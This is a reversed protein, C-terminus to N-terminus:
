SYEGHLGMSQWFIGPLYPIIRVFGRASGAEEPFTDLLRCQFEFFDSYSRWVVSSSGDSWELNVVFTYQTKRNKKDVWREKISDLRAATVYIMAIKDEDSDSLENDIYYYFHSRRPSSRTSWTFM